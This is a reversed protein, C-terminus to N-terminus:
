RVRVRPDRYLDFGSNLIEVTNNSRVQQEVFNKEALVALRGSLSNPGTNRNLIEHHITDLYFRDRWVGPLLQLAHETGDVEGRSTEFILRWKGGATVGGDAFMRWAPVIMLKNEWPMAAAFTLRISESFIWVSFLCVVADQPFFRSPFPKRTQKGLPKKRSSALAPFSEATDNCVPLIMLLSAIGIVPFIAVKMLIAYGLHMSGLIVVSWLRFRRSFFGFPVILRQFLTVYCLVTAAWLPLEIGRVYERVSSDFALNQLAYGQLWPAAGSVLKHVGAFFYVCFQTVVVMLAYHSKLVPNERWRAADFGPDTQEWEASSSILTALAYAVFVYNVWIDATSIFMGDLSACSIMSFSMWLSVGFQVWRHRGWLFLGVALSAVVLFLWMMVPSSVFTAIPGLFSDLSSIGSFSIQGVDPLAGSLRDRIAAHIWFFDWVFWLYAVGFGAKALTYFRYPTSYRFM